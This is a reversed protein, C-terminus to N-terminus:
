KFHIILTTTHLSIVLRRLGFVINRSYLDHTPFLSQIPPVSRAGISLLLLGEASKGLGRGAAGRGRLGPPPSCALAETFVGLGRGPRPPPLRLLPSCPILRPADDSGEAPRKARTESASVSRNLVPLFGRRITRKRNLKSEYEYM